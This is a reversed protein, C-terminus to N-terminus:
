GGSNGLTQELEHGKHRHHWGVIEDKAVRKKQRWGGEHIMGGDHRLPKCLEIFSRTMSHLTVWFLRTVSSLESLVCDVPPPFPLGSWYEQWLFGMFLIFLCFIHCQFSLGGPQYTDLISSPFLLPCNSIAGSLIFSCPWLLFSVWNHIHKTTFTFDSAKFFLVAFSGPINPGHILIFQIHDLLFRCSQHRSFM